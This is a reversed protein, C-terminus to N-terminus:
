RRRSSAGAFAIKDCKELAIIAVGREGCPVGGLRVGGAYMTAVPGVGAVLTAGLEQELLVAVTVHHFNVVTCSWMSTRFLAARGGELVTACELLVQAGHVLFLAGELAVQARTREALAIM